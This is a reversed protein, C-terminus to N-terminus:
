EHIYARIEDLTSQLKELDSEFDPMQTTLLGSGFHGLPKLYAKRIEEVQQRLGSQLEQMEKDVRETFIRWSAQLYENIQRSDSGLIEVVENPLALTRNQFKYGEVHLTVLKLQNRLSIM